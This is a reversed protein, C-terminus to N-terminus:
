VARSPLLAIMLRGHGQGFSVATAIAFPTTALSVWLGLLFATTLTILLCTQLNDATHLYGGLCVLCGTLTIFLPLVLLLAPLRRFRHGKISVVPTSLSRLLMSITLLLFFQFVTPQFFRLWDFGYSYCYLLWIM